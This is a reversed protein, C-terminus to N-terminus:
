TTEDAQAPQYDGCRACCAIADLPKALTCERHLACQFVKIRILGVCTPCDQERIESGRHVCVVQSRAASSHKQFPGRGQEWAQFLDPRTRCLEFWRRPKRCRHRQCWGPEDCECATIRM